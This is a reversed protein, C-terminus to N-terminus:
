DKKIEVWIRIRLILLILEVFHTLALHWGFKDLRVTPSFLDIKWLERENKVKLIELRIGIIIIFADKTIEANTFTDYADRQQVAM